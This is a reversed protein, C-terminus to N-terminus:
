EPLMQVPLHQGLRLAQLNRPEEFVNKKTRSRKRWNKKSKKKKIKIGRLSARV